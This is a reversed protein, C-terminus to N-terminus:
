SAPQQRAVPQRLPHPLKQGSGSTGSRQPMLPWWPLMTCPIGLPAMWARQLSRGQLLGALAQHCTIPTRGCTASVPCRVVDHHLTAAAIDPLMQSLCFGSPAYTLCGELQLLLLGPRRRERVPYVPKGSAPDVIVAANDVGSAKQAHKALEWVRRMYRHM